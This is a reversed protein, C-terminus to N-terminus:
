ADVSARTSQIGLDGMADQVAEIIGKLASAADEYVGHRLDEPLRKVDAALRSRLVEFQEKPTEAAELEEAYYRERFSSSATRAM